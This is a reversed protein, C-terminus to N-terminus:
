FGDRRIVPSVVIAIFLSEDGRFINLSAKFEVRQRCLVGGVKHVEGGGFVKFIGVGDLHFERRWAVGEFVIKFRVILWATSEFDFGAIVEGAQAVVIFVPELHVQLWLLM